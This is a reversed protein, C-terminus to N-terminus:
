VFPLVVFVALGVAEPPQLIQKDLLEAPIGLGQLAVWGAQLGPGALQWLQAFGELGGGYHGAEPGVGLGLQQDLLQWWRM